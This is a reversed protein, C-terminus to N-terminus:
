RLGPNACSAPLSAAARSQPSSRGGPACTASCRRPCRSATNRRELLAVLVDAAGLVESLRAYPQIPLVRLNALGRRQAEVPLMRAGDRDDRRRGTAAPIAAALDALLHLDHRPWTCRCVPVRLRRGPFARGGVRQPPRNAHDRSVPSWNPILSINSRPVGYRSLMELFDPSISVVREARRALIARAM